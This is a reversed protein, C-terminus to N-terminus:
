YGKLQEQFKNFDFGTKVTGLDYRTNRTIIWGKQEETDYYFEEVNSTHIDTGDLFRHLFDKALIGYGTFGGSVNPYIEWNNIIGGLPRVAPDVGKSNIIPLKKHIVSM